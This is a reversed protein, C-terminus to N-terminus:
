VEGLGSLAKIQIVTHTVCPFYGGAFVGVRFPNFKERNANM